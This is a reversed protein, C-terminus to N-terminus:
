NITRSLKIKIRNNATSDSALKMAKQWAKKALEERGQKQYVDGLHEYITASTPNNNIAEKLYLEAEGLKGLKFYAWGLSDLFSSNTPDIEVARRILDLAEEMKHNRELLFYGLNNLAFPNTPSQKLLRRLLDEAAKYDGITQQANALTLHAIQKKEENDAAAYAQQAFNIAEKGRRAQNYLTSIYIYNNFDDFMLSPASLTKGKGILPKILGAGEEVKGMETLILAELRLLGYDSKNRSRVARVVTLAEQNRGNERM